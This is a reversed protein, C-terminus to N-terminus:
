EFRYDIGISNIGYPYTHIEINTEFIGCILEDGELVCKYKKCLNLYEELFEKFYSEDIKTKNNM